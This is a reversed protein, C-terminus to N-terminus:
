KEPLPILLTSGPKLADNTLKNHKKIVEVDVGYRKAIQWLTDGSKVVYTVTKVKAVAATQKLPKTTQVPKPSKQPM